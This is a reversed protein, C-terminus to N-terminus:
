SLAIVLQAFIARARPETLKDKNNRLWGHMDGGDGLEMILYLWNSTDVIQVGILRSLLVM